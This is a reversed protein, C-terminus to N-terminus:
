SVEVMGKQNEFLQFIQFQYSLAPRELDFYRIWFHSHKEKAKGFNDSCLWVILM